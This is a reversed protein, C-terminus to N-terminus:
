QGHVKLLLTQWFSPPAFTSQWHVIQWQQARYVWVKTSLISASAQTGDFVGSVKHVNDVVAIDGYLHVDVDENVYQSYIRHKELQRLYEQKLARRGDPGIYLMDGALVRELSEFDRDVTAKAIRSELELVAQHDRAPTRANSAPVAPENAALSLTAWATLLCAAFAAFRRMAKM